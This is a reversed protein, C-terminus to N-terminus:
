NKQSLYKQTHLNHLLLTELQLFLHYELLLTKNNWVWDKVRHWDQNPVIVTNSVNNCVPNTPDVM